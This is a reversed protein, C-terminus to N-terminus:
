GVPPGENSPAVHLLAQLACSRQVSRRHTGLPQPGVRVLLLARQRRHGHLFFGTNAFSEPSLAFMKAQTISQSQWTQSLYTAVRMQLAWYDRTKPTDGILYDIPTSLPTLDDIFDTNIEFDLEGDFISLMEYDYEALLEFYETSNNGELEIMGDTFISLKISISDRLFDSDPHIIQCTNPFSLQIVGIRILPDIVRAIDDASFRKDDGSVHKDDGSMHASLHSHHNLLTNIRRDWDKEVYAVDDTIFM